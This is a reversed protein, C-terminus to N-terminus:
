RPTPANLREIQDRKSQSSPVSLLEINKLGRDRVDPALRPSSLAERLKGVDRDRRAQATPLDKPYMAAVTARDGDSITSNEGPFCPSSAGKVYMWEPFRYLMISKRDFSGITKIEGENLLRRMNFDVKASDWGNPPLALYRYIEPWNFEDECKGEPNQHEHILGLAHGFEHLVISSFEPETPPASNYYDLNMSQDSQSAFNISDQGVLSWHGKYSYGVRIESAEAVGCVRPNNINGFDLSLNAVREWQRAIRAIRSRLETSGGDFFCVNLRQGPTWVKTRNFAGQLEASDELTGPLIAGRHRALSAALHPPYIEMPPAIRPAVAQANAPTASGIMLIMAIAWTLRYAAHHM